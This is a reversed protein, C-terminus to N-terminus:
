QGCMGGSGMMGGGGMMGMMERSRADTDNLRDLMFYCHAFADSQNVTADDSGCGDQMYRALEDDMSRCSSEVDADRDDDMMRMCGDMDGSMARMQEMRPQVDALYADRMQECHMRDPAVEVADRYNQVSTRIEQSIRDWEQLDPARTGCGMTLSVLVVASASLLAKM